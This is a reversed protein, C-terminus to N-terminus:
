QKNAKQDVPVIQMETSPPAQVNKKGSKMIDLRISVVHSMLPNDQMQLSTFAYDV